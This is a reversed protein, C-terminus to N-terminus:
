AISPVEFEKRYERRLLQNAADAADGVFQEREADFELVPSIKFESKAIDAGNRRLHEHAQGVLQPWLDVDSGISRTKEDAYQGGVRCAINVLNCWATSAHGIKVEANLRKRDRSAVADVFNRAHGAGSDGKFRRIIKGDRDHAAGGGRGGAYYGGECHVVYGSGVGLYKVDDKGDKENPLNTLGFLVPISGTDYYAFCVNPSEGADHWAVRGGAALLRKPFPVRDRLVVNVADDIVHVGWNGMEGNGTNWHWHWDYHWKDRYIPKDAAPGLWLNYDLSKPPALPEARKGIPERKGFRCVVVCEINGLTKEEHLFNKLEDQLPDSRQQTGIQVIRNHRRAARVVQQGEWHNHALPKEVYVDKGAQCAWVAALAHWHNCTAIAVADVDRDELLKRLDAYKNAGSHKKGAEDLLKQDPDCLAAIRVDALKGFQKLLENGRGGLGIFGINLKENINQARVPSIALGAGLAASQQLFTRRHIRSM